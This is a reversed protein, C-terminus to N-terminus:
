KLQYYSVTDFAKSFDLYIIDVNDGEILYEHIIDTGKWFIVYNQNVMSSVM